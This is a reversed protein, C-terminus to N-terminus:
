YYLLSFVLFGVTLSILTGVFTQAFTHNKLTIRSWGVLGVISTLPLASTGFVFVLAFIPGTVGACHISVKWFWNVAMLIISVFLSGLALLFMIKTNTILFIISAFAYSTIAILFFPTREERNSVYLDIVKKRHFYLIALFPFFVFCFFCLLISLPVSLLGLGIPSWLSFAITAIIAMTPPAIFISIFKAFDNGIFAKIKQKDYKQKKLKM